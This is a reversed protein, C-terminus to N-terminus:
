SSLTPSRHNGDQDNDSSGALSRESVATLAAISTLTKAVILAAVLAAILTSILAAVLAMILAMILALMLPKGDPFRRSFISNKRTDIFPM